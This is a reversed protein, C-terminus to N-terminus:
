SARPDSATTERASNGNPGPSSQAKLSAVIASKIMDAGAWALTGIWGNSKRSTPPPEPCNKDGRSPNEAVTPQPRDAARRALWTAILGGAAAVGVAPLPFRKTWARPDLAGAAHARLDGLTQTM